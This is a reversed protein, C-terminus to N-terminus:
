REIYKNFGAGHMTFDFVQGGKVEVFQVVGYVHIRTDYKDQTTWNPTFVWAFRVAGDKGGPVVDLGHNWGFRYKTVVEFTEPDHVVVNPTRENEDHTDIAIPRMVRTNYVM